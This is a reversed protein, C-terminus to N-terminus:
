PYKAATTRELVGNEVTYIIALFELQSFRARRKQNVNLNSRSHNKCPHVDFTPYIYREFIIRAQQACYHIKVCLLHEGRQFHCFINLNLPEM